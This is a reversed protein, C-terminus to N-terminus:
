NTLLILTKAEQVTLQGRKYGRLDTWSVVVRTTTGLRFLSREAGRLELRPPVMIVLPRDRPQRRLRRGLVVIRRGSFASFLM